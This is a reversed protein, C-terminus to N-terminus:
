QLMAGCQGMANAAKEPLNEQRKTVQADGRGPWAESDTRVFSTTRRILVTGWASYDRHRAGIPCARRPLLSDNQPARPM